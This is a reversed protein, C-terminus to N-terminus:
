WLFLDEVRAWSFVESLLAETNNNRVQTVTYTNSRVWAPINEGTVWNTANQNVRVESGVVIKQSPATTNSQPIRLIQGTNIVNPNTINNLKAIEDVTTNWSKALESLTDGAVVVHQSQQQDQTNPNIWSGAVGATRTVNIMQRAGSGDRRFINYHGVEVWNVRNRDNRADEATRYGRTRTTVTFRETTAVPPKQPASANPNLINRVQNRLTVVDIDTCSTAMLDKHRVIKNIHNANWGFDRFKQAIRQALSTLQAQTINSNNGVHQGVCCIHWTRDNQSAVGWSRREDQMNIEVNGNQLIVEHYGGRANPAGMSAQTRWWNEFNSTTINQLDTTNASHHIVITDIASTQRENAGRGLAKNIRNFIQM